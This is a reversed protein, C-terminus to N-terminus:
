AGPSEELCRQRVKELLGAPAVETAHARIVARLHREFDARDGCPYCEALHASVEALEQRELEGDLYFELRELAEPCGDGVCESAVQPGEMNEHTSM